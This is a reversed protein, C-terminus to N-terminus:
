SGLGAVVEVLGVPKCCAAEAPVRASSVAVADLIQVHGVLSCSGSPDPKSMVEQPQSEVDGGLTGAKSAM